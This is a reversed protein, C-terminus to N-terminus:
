DLQAVLRKPATARYAARLLQEVLIWDAGDMDLWVGLWGFRGVHDPVFVLAPHSQIHRGREAATSKLHLAVRADGHHDDLFWGFRKGRVELSLHAEHAAAETEPYQSVIEMVRQRPTHQGEVQSLKM